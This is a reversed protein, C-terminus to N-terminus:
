KPMNEKVVAELEDLTQDGPYLKGNIEWTPFGEINKTICSQTASNMGDRSCEVYDIKKSGFAEKGLTEKQSKTYGCWYAGYLKANMTELNSALKMARDSSSTTIAPAEKGEKAKPAEAPTPAETSIAAVADAKVPTAKTEKENKIKTSEVAPAPPKVVVKAEDVKPEPSPMEAQVFEELEELTHQGSFMKGNIEWTPVSRVNKDDCLGEQPNQGDSACEVYQIKAFAEKGFAEKQDACHSCWYAGYMRTNLSDLKTALALAQKSSTSKIIPPSQLAPERVVVPKPAAKLETDKESKAAAAVTTPTSSTSEEDKPAPTSPKVDPALAPVLAPSEPVKKVAAMSKEAAVVFREIQDLSFERAEFVNGYIEWTPFTKVGKQKCMQKQSAATCDVYPLKDAGDKGFLEKQHKTFQCWPAGYLKTDPLKQLRAALAVARSVPEETRAPPLALLTKQEPEKPQAITTKEVVVQATTVTTASLPSNKSKKAAIIEELDGLDQVGKYLKGDIQWTPLVQVEQEKCLDLQSVDGDDACEIYPIKGFVAKGLLEKQEFTNPCWYAGYLRTNLSELQSAISLARESSTTMIKPPAKSKGGPPSAESMRVLVDMEDLSREGSFLKGQIEWTPYGSIGKELCLTTAKSNEGVESCEVYEINKSAFAEKGFMEKQSACHSCWYAGYMRAHNDKLKLSLALARDSSAAMIEPAARGEVLVNDDKTLDFLLMEDSAFAAPNHLTTGGLFLTAAVFTTTMGRAFSKSLSQPQSHRNTSPCDVIDVENKSPSFPSAVSQHQRFSADLRPM